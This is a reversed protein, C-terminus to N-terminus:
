RSFERFTYAKNLPCALEFSVHLRTIRPECWDQTDVSRAYLLVAWRESALALVRAVRTALRCQSVIAQFLQASVM